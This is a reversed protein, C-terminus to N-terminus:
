PTRRPQKSVEVAEFKSALLMGFNKTEDELKHKKDQELLHEEGLDSPLKRKSGEKEFADQESETKSRTLRTWTGKAKPGM